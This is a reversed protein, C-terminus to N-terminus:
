GPIRVEEGIPLREPARVHLVAGSALVVEVKFPLGEASPEVGDFSLDMDVGSCMANWTPYLGNGNIAQQVDPRPRWVPAQRTVGDLTIRVWLVDVNLLCWGSLHLGIGTQTPRAVAGM